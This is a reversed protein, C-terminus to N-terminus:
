VLYVEVADVGVQWMLSIDTQRLDLIGPGPNVLLQVHVPISPLVLPQHVIDLLLFDRLRSRRCTRWTGWWRGRRGPRWTGWWPPCPPGPNILLHLLAPISPHLPTTHVIFSLLFDRLITRLKSRRCIRWKGWWRGQTRIWRMGWWWGKRETTEM